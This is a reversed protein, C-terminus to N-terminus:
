GTSNSTDDLRFREALDDVLDDVSRTGDVALLLLGSQQSQRVVEADWLADRALRAELLTAPDLDGWNARARDPDAYRQTLAMRRFEPTPVLFVAQGTWTLLGDLDSPLTRFDDVILTQDRDRAIVDDLVFDFTEGHLSAMGDFTEAPSRDLWRQAPTMAATALLRPQHQATCRALYSREALDGDYVDAGYRQALATALTTKGSGTGGALWGANELKKLSIAPLETIAARPSSM